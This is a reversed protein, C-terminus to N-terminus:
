LETEYVAVRAHEVRTEVRAWPFVCLWFPAGEARKDQIARKQGKEGEFTRKTSHQTRKSRRM